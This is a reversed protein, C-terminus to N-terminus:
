MSFTVANGGYMVYGIKVKGGTKMKERYERSLTHPDSVYQVGGDFPKGENMMANLVALMADNTEDIFFRVNKLNIAYTWTSTGGEQAQDYSIKAGTVKFKKDRIENLSPLAPTLKALDITEYEEPATFQSAPRLLPLKSSGPEGVTITDSGAVLYDVIFHTYPSFYKRVDMVFKKGEVEKLKAQLGDGVFFEVENGERVLAFDNAMGIVDPSEFAYKFGISVVDGRAANRLSTVVYTEQVKGHCSALIGMLVIATVCSKYLKSM